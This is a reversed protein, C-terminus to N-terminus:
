AGHTVVRGSRQQQPVYSPLEIPEGCWCRAGFDAQAVGLEALVAQIAHLTFLVTAALDDPITIVRRAADYPDTIEGRPAYQVRICM